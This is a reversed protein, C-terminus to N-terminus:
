FAKPFKSSYQGLLFAALLWIVIFRYMKETVVENGFIYNLTLILVVSVLLFLATFYERKM